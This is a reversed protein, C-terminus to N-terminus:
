ASRGLVAQLYEQRDLLQWAAKTTFEMFPGAAASMALTVSALGAVPAAQALLSRRSPMTPPATAPAPKWFAEKWIITMSSLTLLSAALAVAALLYQDAAFCGQLLAVKAIFGPLPPIGALAFAAVLFLSGLWPARPWLGGLRTLDSSHGLHQVIGSILFLTAKVIMDHALYFVAGSLGAISYLGLGMLLYGVHGIIQFSLIRRLERHTIAGLTGALMTLGAMALLINQTYGTIDTFILTFMRIMAYVGVKTLLGAFVASTAVAPTHYSAPLWFFFPFAAAKVGFAVLFLM